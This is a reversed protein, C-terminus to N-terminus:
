RADRLSLNATYHGFLWTKKFDQEFRRVSGPLVNGKDPNVQLTDVHSGFTDRIEIQGVPQVHVNGTNTFREVLKLPGTEFFSTEKETSTATTFTTLQLNEKIDGAIRVLVLTGASAVLGVNAKDSNEPLGTFRIVGYHGGAEADAPVAVNISVTEKEQPALTFVPSNQVWTQITTPLKQTPDLLISPTGTEDKSGFDNIATTFNLVSTTVNTVKVNITYSQGPTGELNVVAPSLQLGTAPSTTDAYSPSVALTTLVITLAGVLLSIRPLLQKIM